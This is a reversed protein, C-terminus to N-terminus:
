YCGLAPGSKFLYGILYVVDVIDVFGNCDGDGKGLPCPYPGIKFLYNVLCVVDVINVEGDQNADGIIYPYEYVGIDIRRGGSDHVEFCSDGADICPSHCQLTFNITDAFLPDRIINYFSDCSIENFNTGWTIDGVGPQGGYFDGDANNWVNNYSITPWAEDISFIGEGDLSNSIINNTIVPSANWDCMIGGGCSSASNGNITNNSILSICNRDCFIGGGSQASNRIIRNNNITPSSEHCWIGGGSSASNGSITNNSIIPSSSDCHIGGGAFANGNIITFGKIISTSDEGSFFTVVTGASDGDIITSDTTTMDNDFIFNSAVLIKKGLFNIREDYHGTAVLITDGDIAENIAKQITKFPNSQSGDGTTDNGTSSVYLIGPFYHCGVGLAGMNTGGQGSGVCPSFLDFYYNDVGPNCFLPDASICGEGPTVGEYDTPYNDRVDNYEIIPDSSEELYIGWGLSSGVIINNLVTTSGTFYICIGGGGQGAQNNVITNNVLSNDYGQQGAVIVGGGRGPTSNSVILNNEVITGKCQHLNIGPGSESINNLVLNNRVSADCDGLFIAGGHFKGENEVIVNGELVPHGRNCYVGAGHFRSLNNRIINNVIKPSSLNCYIGGGRSVNNGRSIAFGDLISTTDEGSVFRVISVSDQARTITTTQPGTESKLLIAKGKFDIHEYYTGAAVLVTDGNVAGNIGGQITSSDAPVHIIKADAKQLPFITLVLAMLIKSYRM